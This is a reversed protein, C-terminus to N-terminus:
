MTLFTAKLNNTSSNPALKGWERHRNLTVFQRTDYQQNENNCYTNYYKLSKVM